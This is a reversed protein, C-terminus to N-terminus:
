LVAAPDEEGGGGRSESARGRWGFSRKRSTEENERSESESRGGGDIQEEPQEHQTQRPLLAIQISWEPSTGVAFSAASRRHITAAFRCHRVSASSHENRTHLLSRAKEADICSRTLIRKPSLPCRRVDAVVEEKEVEMETSTPSGVDTAPVSDAVGQWALKHDQFAQEYEANTLWKEVVVSHLIDRDPHLSDKPQRISGILTLSSVLLFYRAACWRSGNGRNECRACSGRRETLTWGSGIGRRM